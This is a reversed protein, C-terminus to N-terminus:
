AMLSYIQDDPGFSLHNIRHSLDMIFDKKNKRAVQALLQHNGFGIYFHNSLFHLYFTGMIKCGERQTMAKSVEAVGRQNVMKERSAARRNGTVESERKLYYREVSHTRGKKSTFRLDILECPVNFVDIDLTVMLDNM